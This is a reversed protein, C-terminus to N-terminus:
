ELSLSGGSKIPKALGLRRIVHRTVHERVHTYTMRCFADMENKKIPKENQTKPKPNQTKPKPNQTRPKPNQTKAKQNKTEAWAVIALPAVQHLNDGRHRGAKLMKFGGDLRSRGWEETAALM